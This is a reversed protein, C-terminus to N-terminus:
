KETSTLAASLNFSKNFTAGFSLTPPLWFGWCSGIWRKLVWMATTPTPNSKHLTYQARLGCPYASRIMGTWALFSLSVMSLLQFEDRLNCRQIVSNFLLKNRCATAELIFWRSWIKCSTNIICYTPGSTAASIASLAGEKLARNTLWSSSGPLRVPAWMNSVHTFVWLASGVAMCLFPGCCHLTLISFLESPLLLSCFPQLGSLGYKPIIATM